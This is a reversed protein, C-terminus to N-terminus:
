LLDEHPDLSLRVYLAPKAGLMCAALTESPDTFSFIRDAEFKQAVVREIQEDDVYVYDCLADLTLKIINDVDGDMETEPYYFLTAAVPGETPESGEPLRCKAAELVLQKWETKPKSLKRQFSVPTGHVIFELPFYAPL